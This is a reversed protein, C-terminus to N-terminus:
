PVPMTFLRIIREGLDNQLTLKLIDEPATGQTDNQENGSVFQIFKNEVVVYQGYANNKTTASVSGVSTQLNGLVSANSRNRNFDSNINELVQQLSLTRELRYVPTGSQEVSTGLYAVLMSGLISAVVLTVIVELMTFGSQRGKLRSNKM